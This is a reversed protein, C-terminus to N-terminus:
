VGGLQTWGFVFAAGTLALRRDIWYLGLGVLLALLSLVVSVQQLSRSVPREVVQGISITRSM